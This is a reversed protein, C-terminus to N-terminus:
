RQAEIAAPWNVVVTIPEPPASEASEIVLFRQGDASVQFRASGSALRHEFILQPQGFALGSGRDEVTVGTIENGRLYLIEQGDGRWVPWGGGDVSVQWKRGPGPFPAVYVEWSGSENSGYVVWRGDPSFGPSYEVFDSEIWPQPAADETLSWSLLDVNTPAQSVRSALLVTSGDSHWAGPLTRRDFVSLLEGDGSGGISKRHISYQEENETSGWMVTEGDPSFVASGVDGRGFTFRTRLKRNLDVVWLDDNEGEDQRIQVIATEETPSLRFSNSFRAPEGVTEQISGDRARWRLALDASFVGGQFALVGTQSASFVAQATEEAILVVTDAIPFPEGSLELADPDFPQAMLTRERLFLLHGSAYEAAAPSRIIVKQEQGELSAAVIAHGEDFGDRFRALYLFHQGDPLFRPHRHSNDGREEDFTTVDVPEGGLQSVRQIPRDAEPAFVIVGESSWSGGKGNPADCLTLPQGGSASVKKLKDDAFFGLNKSDPSWFPYEAGDTGALVRPQVEDLDRVFIRAQGDADWATFALSQGDPSVVVPGPRYPDLQYGRDEPPPVQFRITSDIAPQKSVNGVGLVAAAVVALGAVTWPLLRRWRPAAVPVPEVSASDSGDPDARYDEFLVRAEGIDRLRRRADKDLSRRVLRRLYSPTEPPLADLDPAEKLVSALVDSVTHGEFLKRGTLMEWLVVGFSWIDARRDVPMGRAQEPSMYAATGLILGAATAHQTITPSLSLGPDAGDAEWAKALGFDLVKVTGDPRLKINAPKLDRHVIGSEHAAELAEAIQLAIATAEEIPVPGRKIRESLDEGEVLEMVLFTTKGGDADSPSDSDAAQVRSAHAVVAEPSGQSDQPAATGAATRITVNELGYLTAINPHNLSALVKAEREFRAMREPDQAFEEPLVKLAVQRGLKEDEARWVEGMGGVGLAATVKYHALTTGIM